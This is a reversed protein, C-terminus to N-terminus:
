LLDSFTASYITVPTPQSPNSSQSISAAASSLPPSPFANMSPNAPYVAPLQMALAATSPQPRPAVHTGLQSIFDCIATAKPRNLPDQAWCREALGWVDDSLEPADEDEPREPQVGQRAVLNVFEAHSIQGLPIEDTYIQAIMKRLNQLFVLVSWVEYITMGFSYIDYPKRVSGGLLREPAM